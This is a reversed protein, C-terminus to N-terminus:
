QQLQPLQGETLGHQDYQTQWLKGIVVEPSSRKVLPRTVIPALRSGTVTVASAVPKKVPVSVSTPEIERAGRKARGKKYLHTYTSRPRGNRGEEGTTPNSISGERSSDRGSQLPSSDGGSRTQGSRKLWNFARTQREAERREIKEREEVLRDHKFANNEFIELDNASVYNLIEDLQVGPVKVSGIQLEYTPPGWEAPTRSCILASEPAKNDLRSRLPEVTKVSSLFSLDATTTM